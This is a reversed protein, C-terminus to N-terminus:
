NMSRVQFQYSKKDRGAFDISGSARMMSVLNGPYRRGGQEIGNLGLAAALRSFGLIIKEAFPKKNSIPSVMIRKRFNLKRDGEISSNTLM